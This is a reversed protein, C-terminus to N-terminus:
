QRIIHRVGYVWVHFLAEGGTEGLAVALRAYAHTGQPPQGPHTAQTITSTAETLPVPFHWALGEHALILSRSADGAAAVVGAGM